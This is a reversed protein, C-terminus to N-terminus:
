SKNIQSGYRFVISIFGFSEVDEHNYYRELSKVMGRKLSLSGQSTIVRADIKGEVLAEVVRQAQRNAIANLYRKSKAGYVSSSVNVETVDYSNILLVIDQFLFGLGASRWQSTYPKFLMESPIYLKTVQGVQYFYIGSRIIDNVLKERTVYNVINHEDKLAKKEKSPVCSVLFLFVCLISFVKKNMYKCVRKM